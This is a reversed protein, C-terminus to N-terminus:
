YLHSPVDCAAGPYRNDFWVGGLESRRELIVYPIGCKALEVAACLGSIGAGVILARVGPPPGANQAPQASTAPPMPPLQLDRRIMPAYEPPVQEGLSVSMMEVLLNDSPNPLAPPRGACLAALAQLAARRIETQTEQPLGGSDNDDLGRVRSPVYRGEIWGREGTLHVLVCALTPVNAVAIAAALWGEENGTGDPGKPLM